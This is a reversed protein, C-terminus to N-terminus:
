NAGESAEFWAYMGKAATVTGPTIAEIVLCDGAVLATTSLTASEPTNDTDSSNITIVASLATALSESGLSGKKLDFTFNNGGATTKALMTAKFKRITVAGAAVFAMFTFTTSTAPTADAEIGFHTGIKILHDSKAVNIAASSAVQLNAISSAGLTIGSASVIGNVHLDNDILAM